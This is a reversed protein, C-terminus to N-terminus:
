FTSMGGGHTYFLGPLVQSETGKKRFIHLPIDHGDLGKVTKTTHTVESEDGAPFALQPADYMGQMAADTAKMFDTIADIPADLPLEAEPPRKDLGFAALAKKLNQNLRPDDGIELSDQGLRGEPKYGEM